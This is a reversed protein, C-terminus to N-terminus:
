RLDDALSGTEAFDPDVFVVDALEAVLRTKGVGPPGAVVVDCTLSNLMQLEADRGIPSLQSWPREALDAPIRTLSIPNGPIGLLATRWAGDRRLRSAFFGHDYFATITANFENAKKRLSARQRENLAAPNALIIREYAVSHETMSKLSKVMNAQVGKPTRATTIMVRTPVTEGPVHIDADRGHDTAEPVPSLGPYLDTLVDTACREFLAPNLQRTALTLEIRDLEGMGTRTPKQTAAHAM